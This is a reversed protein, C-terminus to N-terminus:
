TLLSVGYQAPRLYPLSSSRETQNVPKRTSGKWVQNECLRSRPPQRTLNFDPSPFARTSSKQQLSSKGLQFSRGSDASTEAATFISTVRTSSRPVTTSAFHSASEKPIGVGEDRDLDTIGQRTSVEHSWMTKSGIIKAAAAEEERRAHLAAATYLDEGPLRGHYHVSEFTSAPGFNKGLEGKGRAVEFPRHAVRRHHPIKDPEFRVETAVPAAREQGVATRRWENEVFPEHLGESRTYHVDRPPKRFEEQTRAPHVRFAPASADRRSYTDNPKVAQHAHVGPPQAGSFEFSSSSYAPSYTWTKSGQQHEMHQRMWDKQLEASNLKQGSYLHVQKGDLFPTERQRKKGMIDNLVVNEQSRALVAERNQKTFDPLSSDKRMELTQLYRRNTMDLPEKLSPRLRHQKTGEPSAASLFSAPVLTEDPIEEQHRWDAQAKKKTTAEPEPEPEGQLEEASIHEGYLVNLQVLQERTPFSNSSKLAKLRASLKLGMLIKPAEHAAAIAEDKLGSTAYLKSKSALEELPLRLKVQQLAAGCDAYIRESFGIDPNHLLKCREENRGREPLARVVKELGKGRLGEMVMLRMRGDLVAFGTILDLHPNSKQDDTLELTDLELSSADVDLIQANHSRVTQLVSKIAPLNEAALVLLIRGFREYRCGLASDPRAEAEGHLQSAVAKATEVDSGLAAQLREDDDEARVKQWRWPGAVVEGSPLQLKARFPSACQGSGTSGAADPSLRGEWINGAAIRQENSAWQKELASQEAKQIDAAKPLPAGLAATITCFTGCAHYEPTDEHGKADPHANEAICTGVAVAPQGTSDAGQQGFGQLTGKMSVEKVLAAEARKQRKDSRAPFVDARLPACLCGEGLLVALPFRAVGHQHVTESPMGDKSAAEELDEKKEPEKEKGKSKGKGKDKEKGKSPPRAEPPAEAPVADKKGPAKRDRDHVEVVLGDNQLWDRVVHPPALGLLWVVPENFHLVTDHPLGMSCVAKCEAALSRCATASFQPSLKIYVDQCTDKVSQENPLCKVAEVTFCAPLLRERMPHTLLPEEAWARVELRYLGAVGITDTWSSMIEFHSPDGRESHPQSVARSERSGWGGKTLLPGLHLRAAGPVEASSGNARPLTVTIPLVKNQIQRVLEMNVNVPVAAHEWYACVSGPHRAVDRSCRSDGAELLCGRLPGTTATTAFAGSADLWPLSVCADGVSPHLTARVSLSLKVTRPEFDWSPPAQTTAM